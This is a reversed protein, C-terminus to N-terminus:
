SAHCTCSSSFCFFKRINVMHFYYNYRGVLWYNSFIKWVHGKVRKLDIKNEGKEFHIKVVQAPKLPYVKKFRFDFLTEKLLKKPYVWVLLVTKQSGKLTYFYSKTPNSNGFTATYAKGKKDYVSVQVPTKALGFDPDDWKVDSLKRFSKLGVITKIFSNFNKSDVPTKVPATIEWTGNNREFVITTKANKYVVKTVDSKKVPFIKESIEKEKAKKGQYSIEYFYYYGGLLVLIILGIISRKFGSM